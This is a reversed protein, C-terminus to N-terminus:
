AELFARVDAAKFYWRRGFRRPALGHHTGARSLNKRITQPECRLYAAVEDTTWFESSTAQVSTPSAIVASVTVPLHHNSGRDTMAAVTTQMSM